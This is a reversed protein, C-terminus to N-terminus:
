TKRPRKAAAELTVVNGARALRRAEVERALQAAIHFRGASAADALARVLLSELEDALGVTAPHTPESAVANAWRNAWKADVNESDKLPLLSKFGRRGGQCDSDPRRLGSRGTVFHQSI